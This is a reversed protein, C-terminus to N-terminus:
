KNDEDIFVYDIKYLGKEKVIILKIIVKMKTSPEIYSVYYLDDRKLDKRITLTKLCDIGFDQAKILPEYDL